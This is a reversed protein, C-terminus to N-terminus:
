KASSEGTTVSNTAGMQKRIENLLSELFSDSWTQEGKRANDVWKRFGDSRGVYRDMAPAMMLGAAQVALALQKRPNEGVAAAILGPWADDYRHIMTRFEDRIHVLETQLPPPLLSMVDDDHGLLVAELMSRSSSGVKDKLRSAAVYAASKVKVRRYGSGDGSTMRVVCGESERPGRTSIFALLEPLTGLPYMPAPPIPHGPHDTPCYEWGDRNRAALWHLRATDHRVVIMNWPTTLEYLYTTDKSMSQQLDAFTTGHGLALAHEFLSRFTWAGQGSLATSSLAMGGLPKDADPVSRTAVCWERAHDDYSVIMLSGDLKEFVRTDPHALDLEPAHGQGHNFFRDFPRALVITDGVVGQTPLPSGDPTAIILGRCERALQDSEKAEIQDYNLSAKYQRTGISADVGHERMLDAFSHTRLYECVLPYTM